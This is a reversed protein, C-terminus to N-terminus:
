KKPLKEISIATKIDRISRDLLVDDMKARRVPDKVKPYNTGDNALRDKVLARGASKQIESSPEGHLDRLLRYATTGEGNDKAM